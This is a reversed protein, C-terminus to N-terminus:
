PMLFAHPRAHFARLLPRCMVAYVVVLVCWCAFLANPFDGPALRLFATLMTAITLLVLPLMTFFVRFSDLRRGALPTLCMLLSGACVGIWLTVLLGIHMPGSDRFWALLMLGAFATLLLMGLRQRLRRLLAGRAADATGLGPLLALEAFEGSTRLRQRQLRLALNWGSGLLGVVGGLLLADRIMVSDGRFPVVFAVLVLGAVLSWQKLADRFAVRGMAGGLCAGIAAAPDHPGADDARTVPAMWGSRAQWENADADEPTAGFDMANQPRALVAPRRWTPVSNADHMRVVAKWRWAVLALAVAVAALLMGNAPIATAFGAHREVLTRLSSAGISPLMVLAAALPMPVLVFLLGGLAGLAPTGIAQVPAAGALTLALGPLLVTLTAGLTLTGAIAGRIGPVCGQASQMQLLALRGFWGSWLMLNAVAVFVTLAVLVRRPDQAVCAVVIAPVALLALGIGMWARHRRSTAARMVAWATTFVGPRPAVANM